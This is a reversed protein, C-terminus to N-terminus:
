DITLVEVNRKVHGGYIRNDDFQRSSNSTWVGRHIREVRLKANHGSAPRAFLPMPSLRALWEPQPGASNFGCNYRLHALDIKWSWSLGDV